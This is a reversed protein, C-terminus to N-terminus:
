ILKSEQIYAPATRQSHEQPPNKKGTPPLLPTPSPSNTQTPIGANSHSKFFSHPPKKPTESRRPHEGTSKTTNKPARKKVIGKSPHKQM